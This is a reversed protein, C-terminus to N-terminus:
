EPIPDAEVITEELQLSPLKETSAVENASGGQNLGDVALPRAAPSLRAQCSPWSHNVGSGLCGQVREFDAPDSSCLSLDKRLIDHAKARTLWEHWVVWQKEDLWGRSAAEFEDECLRLYRHRARKHEPSGKPLILLDDDIEWYRKIYLNGLELM